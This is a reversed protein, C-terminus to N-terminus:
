GRAGDLGSHLQRWLSHWPFCCSTVCRRRALIHVLHDREEATRGEEASLSLSKLSVSRAVYGDTKAEEQWRPPRLHRRCRPAIGMGGGGDGGSCRRLRFCSRRRRRKWEEARAFELPSLSLPPATCSDNAIAFGGDGEGEGKRRWKRKWPQNASHVKCRRHTTRYRFRKAGVLRKPTGGQGRGGDEKDGGSRETVLSTLKWGEM